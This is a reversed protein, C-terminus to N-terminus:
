YNEWLVLANESDRLFLTDGSSTWVYDEDKWYLKSSSDVGEGVIVEVREFSGLVFNNFFFEKRGEDKVMWDNLDCDFGCKNLFVVKKNEFDELVICEACVDKSKECLNIEKVLCNEWASFFEEYYKDKKSPYYITAFGNKVLEVNINLNRNFLYGLERYYKDKGKFEVGVSKNLVKEELFEKAELYLVEGKEPSNIGLLRIKLDGAEVTDGDIVRTILIKERLSEEGLYNILLSDLFRYNLILLLAILFVLILINKTKDIM